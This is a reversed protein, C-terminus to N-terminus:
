ATLQAQLWGEFVAGPALVVPRTVCVPEICVFKRWDEDPLDALAQAGGAGPNWVMWENFGGASLELSHGSTHLQVAPCATYLREFPQETWTLRPQTIDHQRLTADYRDRVAIGALGTAYSSQLDDLLWYPHLGGTWSFTTNGTNRVSLSVRVARDTSNVHLTLECAHPWDARDGPALHLQYAVHHPATDPATLAQWPLNRVWGHKPLPGTDAFQPFLVPVGGRAPAHPKSLPSNYFLAVKEIPGSVCAELLQAGLAMHQSPSFKFDMNSLMKLFSIVVTLSAYAYSDSVSVVVGVLSASFGYSIAM